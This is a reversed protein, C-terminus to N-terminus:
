VLVTFEIMLITGKFFEDFTSMPRPAGLEFGLAKVLYWEIHLPIRVKTNSVASVLPETIPFEVRWDKIPSNM